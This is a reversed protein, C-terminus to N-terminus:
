KIIVIKKILLVSSESTVKCFYVGSSLENFNIEVNSSGENNVLKVQQMNSNYLHVTSNLPLNSIRIYNKAPNPYVVIDNELDDQLSTISALVRDSTCGAAGAVVEWDYFFFYNDTNVEGDHKVSSTISAVSGINYPWNLTTGTKDRWIGKKPNEALLRYGNGKPISFDLNLRQEGDVVDIDKTAITTGSADKVVFTRSGTYDSGNNYIKVSKLTFDSKADFALGWIADSDDWIYYEGTDGKDTKGGKIITGEGGAPANEVYFVSATTVPTIFTEGTGIAEGGTAVDYWKAEGDGTITATLTVTGDANKTGHVETPKPAFDITISKTKTDSNTGDSVTLEVTYTNPTSYTHSPSEETSTEGDGFKWLYSTANTSKNSTVIDASCSTVSVDFDAVPEDPPTTTTGSTYELKINKLYDQDPM